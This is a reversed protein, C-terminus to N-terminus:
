GYAPYNGRDHSGGCYRCRQVKNESSGGGRSYSKRQKLNTSKKDIKYVSSPSTENGLQKIHKKAEEAAQGLKIAATLDLNSERLMRERLANDNVGVIIMDMVLSDKLDAFACEGSLKKLETVFGNFSQGEVQRYVFFKHRAITRNARPNCYSEFKRLVPALKLKDAEDAFDFTEYIERGKDGICTLLISTQIKDDKGDAETAVMFFEFSKRWAKWTEALNGSGFVFPKPPKLQDMRRQIYKIKKSQVLQVM